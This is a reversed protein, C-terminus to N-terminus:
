ASLLAICRDIEKLYANIRKEFQKKEMSDMEGSNLKLIEVQQRLRDANEQQQAAQKSTHSLEERLRKNERLVAEQRKLM